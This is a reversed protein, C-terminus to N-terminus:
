LRVQMRPPVFIVIWLAGIEEVTFMGTLPTRLCTCIELSYLRSIGRGFAVSLKLVDDFTM